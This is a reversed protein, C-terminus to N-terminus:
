GNRDVPFGERGGERRGERGGARGPILILSGDGEHHHRCWVVHPGIGLVDTHGILHHIHGSTLIAPSPPLSPPLSSPLFSTSHNTSMASASTQPAFFIRESFAFPPLRPRPSM